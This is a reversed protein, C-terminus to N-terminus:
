RQPFNIPNDPTNTYHVRRRPTPREAEALYEQEHRVHMLHWLEDEVIKNYPVDPINSMCDAYQGTYCPHFTRLRAQILDVAHDDYTADGKAESLECMTHALVNAFDSWLESDVALTPLDYYTDCMTEFTYPHNEMALDVAEALRTRVLVCDQALQHPFHRYNILLRIAEYRMIDHFANFMREAEDALYDKMKSM